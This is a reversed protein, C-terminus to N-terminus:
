TYKAVIFFNHLIIGWVLTPSHFSLRKNEKGQHAKLQKASEWERRKLQALNCPIFLFSFQSFTYNRLTWQGALQEEQEKGPIFKTWKIQRDGLQKAKRKMCEPYGQFQTRTCLRFHPPRCTYHPHRYNTRKIFYSSILLVYGSYSESKHFRHSWFWWEDNKDEWVSISILIFLGTWMLFLFSGRCHCTEHLNYYSYFIGQTKLCTM